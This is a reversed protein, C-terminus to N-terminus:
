YLFFKIILICYVYAQILVAQCAEFGKDIEIVISLFKIIVIAPIRNHLQERAHEPM